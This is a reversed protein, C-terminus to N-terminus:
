AILDLLRDGHLHITDVRQPLPGLLDFLIEPSDAIGIGAGGQVKAILQNRGLKQESDFGAISCIPTITELLKEAPIESAIVHFDLEDHDMQPETQETLTPLQSRDGSTANESVQGQRKGM